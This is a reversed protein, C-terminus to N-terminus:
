PSKKEALEGTTSGSWPTVSVKVGDGIRSQGDMVVQDGESIGKTVLARADTVFASVVDRKEVKGDKGVVYAYLGSPGRALAKDPVVVGDRVEVTLRTAVPLGPWLRSDGNDFNARLHISGNSADVSNDIVSLTGKALQRTGDTASVEVEAIGQKLADRIEAFRDGPAVFSVGIPDMQTITVIGTSSSASIVSGTDVQRFGTRGTFPAVITAFGLQTEANKIAADDYQVAAFLQDSSANKQEVTATSAIGKQALGAYREADAKASRLQAEDQAKKAKASTLDSVLQRDDLRLLLSGKEVIEGEAFPIEMVQGDIRPRVSVSQLSSVTGIGNIVRHITERKATIATVPIPPAETPETDAAFASSIPQLILAAALIAMGRCASTLAFFKM